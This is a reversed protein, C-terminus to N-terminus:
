RQALAYARILTQEVASGSADRTSTRLSVYEAGEPHELFANWGSGNAEVGAAAWTAGDDYSVELSPASVVLPEARDYQEVSLPLCFRTGSPARGREDLEPTFRVVLLPVREPSGEEAHGSQFTWAVQQHTTLEYLSQHEDLELRYSAPEPPLEFQAFGTSELQGILEGERSLALTGESSVFGPHGERDGYRPLDLTLLDGDRQIWEFLAPGDAMAPSFVPENWRSTYAEGAVFANSVYGLVTGVTYDADHM